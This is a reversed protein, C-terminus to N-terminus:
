SAFENFFDSLIFDYFAEAILHQLRIKPNLLNFYLRQM